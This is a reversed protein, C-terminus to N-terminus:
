LSGLFAVVWDTCDQMLLLVREERKLGLSQLGSAFRQVSDALQGYTLQGADDILAVKNDRSKNADILHQAFNFETSPPSVTTM